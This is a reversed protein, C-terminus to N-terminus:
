AQEEQWVSVDPDTYAILVDRGRSTLTYLRKSVNARHHVSEWKVLGIEGLSHCYKRAKYVTMETLNSIAHSTPKVGVRNLDYLARLIVFMKMIGECLVIPRSDSTYRFIKEM